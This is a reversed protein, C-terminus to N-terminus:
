AFNGNRQEGFQYWTSNGDALSSERSQPSMGAAGGRGLGQVSEREDLRDSVIDEAASWSKESGVVYWVRKVARAVAM